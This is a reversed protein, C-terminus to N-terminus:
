GSAGNRHRCASAQNLRDQLLAIVSAAQDALNADPGTSTLPISGAVGYFSCRLLAARVPIRSQRAARGRRYNLAQLDNQLSAVAANARSRLDGLDVVGGASAADIEPVTMDQPTLARASSVLAACRSRWSCRMPSASAERRCDSTFDIAVNTADAPLAAAFVIRLRWSARRRRAASMPWPWFMRRGCTWTACRVGRSHDGGADHYKVTCVVSAPDPLLSALWADVWPEAAARPRMTVGSWAANVTPNGAFLLAVRHTLDLGGRPTNVVDPTPPRQGKSIADLLTGARGFNGRM